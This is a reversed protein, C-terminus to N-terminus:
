KILYKHRPLNLQHGTEEHVSERIGMPTKYVLPLQFTERAALLTKM